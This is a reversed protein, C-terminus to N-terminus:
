ENRLTSPLVTVSCKQISGNAACTWGWSCCFRYKPSKWELWTVSIDVHPTGRTGRSIQFIDLFVIFLIAIHAFMLLSFVSSSKGKFLFDYEDDPKHSM